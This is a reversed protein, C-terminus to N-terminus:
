EVLIFKFQPTFIAPYGTEPDNERLIVDVDVTESKEKETSDFVARIQGAEGPSFVKAVPWDVTTCNCSSVIEIMFDMTGTNKFHFVMERVDGRRVEGLDILSPEFTM